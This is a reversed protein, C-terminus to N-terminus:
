YDSIVYKSCLISQLLFHLSWVPYIKLALTCMTSSIVVLNVYLDYAPGLGPFCTDLSCPFIKRYSCLGLTLLFLPM